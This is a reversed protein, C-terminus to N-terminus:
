KGTSGFGGDGRETESLTDSEIYNINPREMIVIQAIRDGVEYNELQTINGEKLFTKPNIGKLFQLTPKFKCIIEGRYGPDIVGVANALSMTHKSVSSRPFIFGGYGKPIEMALGTGYCTNGYDDVYKSTATLDAGVDGDKSYTPITATPNLKKFKIDLDFIPKSPVEETLDVTLKKLLNEVENIVSDDVNENEFLKDFKELEKLYNRVDNEEM